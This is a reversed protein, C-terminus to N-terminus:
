FTGPSAPYVNWVWNDILVLSDYLDDTTDWIAIRIEMVQGPRVNGATTLWGTSGGVIDSSGCGSTSLADFGTGQLFAPGNLCSATDSLEGFCGMPGPKCVSFLNQAYPDHALNVGIPISRPPSAVRYVALNKDPPNPWDPTPTDILVVYFDNFETCVFEPFESSFFWSAFSFSKANTPVRIRLKLMIPDYAMTADPEPCGPANPLRNSNAALWDAPFGSSKSFSNGPEFEFYDPNTQSPSAANGTSLAVLRGGHLPTILDGFGSRISRAASAPVGTGNALTFEGSIVGWRRMAM